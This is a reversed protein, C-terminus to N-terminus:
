YVSDIIRFDTYESKPLEIEEIKKDTIRAFSPVDIKDLIDEDDTIIEVGDPINRVTGLLRHTKAGYVTAYRFGVGHLRGYLIIRFFKM